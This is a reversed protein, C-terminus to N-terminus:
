LSSEVKRRKPTKPPFEFQMLKAILLYTFYTFWGAMVVDSFFHGGQLIRVFGVLAGLTIGYVFWIRRQRVWAVAMLYFGIAAHGSVFSCNSDCNGSYHFVSAFPMEGGFQEVNQPRPRGVTNEKLVMNVLIGPGVILTILLFTWSKKAAFWKKQHCVVIGAIFLLIYAIHIKAFLLYIFRVFANNGYIFQGDAYYNGTIVLDINPWVLFFIVTLLFLSVDLRLFTKFSPRKNM